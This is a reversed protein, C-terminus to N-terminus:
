AEGELLYVLVQITEIRYYVDDETVTNVHAVFDGIDVYAGYALVTAAAYASYQAYAYASIKLCRLSSDLCFIIADTRTLLSSLVWVKDSHPIKELMVFKNLSFGRNGYHKLYNDVLNMRPNLSRILETTIKIKKSM